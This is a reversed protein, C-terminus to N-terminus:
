HNSHGNSRCASGGKNTYFLGLRVADQYDESGDGNLDYNGGGTAIDKVLMGLDVRDVCGDQNLDPVVAYPRMMENDEHDIIHCHWVYLGAVNFKARIRTSRDRIPSSRTRGAPRGSRGSANCHRMLKLGTGEEDPILDERDVM